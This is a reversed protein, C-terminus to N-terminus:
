PAGRAENRRPECIPVSASGEYGDHISTGYTPGSHNMLRNADGIGPRGGLHVTDIEKKSAYVFPKCASSSGASRSEYPMAFHEHALTLCEDSEAGLPILSDCRLEAWRSQLAPAQSKWDSGVIVHRRQQMSNCESRASSNASNAAQPSGDRTSRCSSEPTSGFFYIGEGFSRLRDFSGIARRCEDHSAMVDCTAVRWPGRRCDRPVLSDCRLEAWRSQLALPLSGRDGGTAVHHRQHMEICESRASQNAFRMAAEFVAQPPGDGPDGFIQGSFLIDFVNPLVSDLVVDRSGITYGESHVLWPERAATDRCRTAFDAAISAVRVKDVVAVHPMACVPAACVGKVCCRRSAGDATAFRSSWLSPAIVIDPRLRAVHEYRGGRRAERNLILASCQLCQWGQIISSEIKVFLHGFHALNFQVNNHADISWAPHAHLGRSVFSYNHMVLRAKPKLVQDLWAEHAHYSPSDSTVVFWDARRLDVVRQPAGNIFNPHSLHLSRLQGTICAAVSPLARNATEPM